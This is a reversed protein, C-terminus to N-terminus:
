EAAALAAERSRRGMRLGAGVAGVGLLMMAWTAPEPAGSIQVTGPGTFDVTAFTTSLGTSTDFVYFQAGYQNNTSTLPVASTPFAQVAGFADNQINIYNYLSGGLYNFYGVSDEVLGLGVGFDAPYSVVAGSNNGAISQTVGDIKLSASVVYSNGALAGFYFVTEGPTPIFLDGQSVDYTYKAVYTDGTLDTNAAGFLGTYDYGSALTGTYTAVQTSANASAAAMVGLAITVVAM